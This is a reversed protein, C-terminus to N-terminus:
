VDLLQIRSNLQLRYLRLVTIGTATLEFYEDPAFSKKGVSRMLGHSVLILMDDSTGCYQKNAARNATHSLIGLQNPTLNM